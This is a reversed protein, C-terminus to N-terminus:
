KDIRFVNHRTLKYGWHRENPWCLEIMSVYKSIAILQIEYTKMKLFVIGATFSSCQFSWLANKVCLVVVVHYRRAYRPCLKSLLVQFPWPNTQKSMTKTSMKRSGTWITQKISCNYNVIYILVLQSLLLMDRRSFQIIKIM